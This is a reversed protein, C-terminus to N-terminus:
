GGMVQEKVQVNRWRDIAWSIVPGKANSPDSRLIRRHNQLRGWLAPGQEQMLHHLTDKRWSSSRCQTVPNKNQCKQVNTLNFCQM